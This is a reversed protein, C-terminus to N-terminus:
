KIVIKKGNIIYLGKSPKGNVRRGHIDYIVDSGEGIPSPIPSLGTTEGFTLFERAGATAVLYAKGFEITGDNALKYFGVGDAATYNLVYANGPNKKNASTGKLDNAQADSSSATTLTMVPTGTSKLVVPTGADVIKDTVELLTVTTGALTVKFVQTNDDAQFAYNENYFTAWQYSNAENAPANIAVVAGEKLNNFAYNGIQPSSNLTITAVNSCYNFADAGITTVTAPVTISKLTSCSMFAANGITTVGDGIVLTTIQDRYDIWPQNTSNEYNTMAGTGSITLTYNLSPGTIVWTLNEGCTGSAVTPIAKIAYRYDSWEDAAQYIAVSAAPVYINSLSYNGSFAYSGLAPPTTANVIVSALETCDEFASYDITTVSAPISISTLSTCHCFANSGITTVGTPIIVSTLKTCGYFANDSIVTVGDPIIVSTLKISGGFANKGISTVTSPIAYTTAEKGAPYQILTTKTKNFLVGDASTYNPNGDAVNIATLSFCENFAGIGIATVGSPITVSALKECFTFVSEGITTVSSPITISALKKCLNFTADSISTLKSGDAFTVSALSTCNAFAAEGITEVSAPITISELASCESFAQEGISALSSGTAFTVSSLSTCERFAYNGISTVSAPITISGLRSEIFAAEGISTVSAPISISELQSFEVFAENGISTVGNSITITAIDDNLRNWPQNGDYNTMPGTGSIVLTNLNDCHSFANDSVSATSQCDFTISRLNTCYYFAYDGISEVSAPVTISALHSYSSFANNGIKTVGSEFTVTTIQDAISYWPQDGSDYDAMAGTGSIKLTKLNTCYQFADNGIDSSELPTNAAFSISAMKECGSFVGAGISTVSPPITISALTSCKNFAEEDITKLESTGDFTVTALKTCENFAWRGISTVAAPITVSTLKECGNFAGMSIDKVSAPITISTLNTCGSFATNGIKTVGSEITVTTIDTIFGNWPRYEPVYDNMSGTGGGLYSITLTKSDSDYSWTVGDGCSDDAWAGSVATLM